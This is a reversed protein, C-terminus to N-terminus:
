RPEMGLQFLIRLSRGRLQEDTTLAVARRLAPGIRDRDDVGLATLGLNFWAHADQSDFCDTGALAEQAKRKCEAAELVHEDSKQFMRINLRGYAVKYARAQHYAVLARNRKAIAPDIEELAEIAPTTSELTELTKLANDKAILPNDSRDAEDLDSAALGVLDRVVAELDDEGWM